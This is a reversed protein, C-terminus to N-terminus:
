IRCKEVFKEVGHKALFDYDFPIRSQIETLVFDARTMHRKWNPGYRHRVLIDSYKPCPFSYGSFEITLLQEVIFAPFSLAPFMHQM